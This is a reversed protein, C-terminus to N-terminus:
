PDLMQGDKSTRPRKVKKVHKFDCQPCGWYKSSHRWLSYILGPILLMLWLVIEILISGPTFRKATGEFGCNPCKIYPRTFM